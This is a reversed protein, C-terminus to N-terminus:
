HTSALECFLKSDNWSYSLKNLMPRVQREFMYTFLATIIMERSLNHKKYSRQKMMETSIEAIMKLQPARTKSSIMPM